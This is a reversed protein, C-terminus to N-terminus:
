AALLFVSALGLFSVFGVVDTVTTLVVAGALAPDINLRNMVLPIVLGAVAAATMNIVIAAAIVGGLERNDFWAFAVAGVVIGWLLGNLLGIVTEKRLLRGANSSGIRELALGRITISLTQSGAIGGMSAVVPMLVALAVIQELAGEFMGIVASALFATLLNIGLWFARSRAATLVPAFLDEDEDVGGQSLIARETELQMVDMADEATIRGLLIGQADVVPLSLLDHDRFLIAVQHEEVEPTVTVVDDDMVQAVTTDELYRVVDLLSLTGVFRRDRDVVMLRDTDDPIGGRLRIYRQVVALTADARVTVTDRHMLRGASEEPFSLVAEVEARRVADMAELLDEGAEDPLVDVLEAMETADLEDAADFVAELGIEEALAQAVSTPMYLLAEADAEDGAQRWLDAREDPPVSELVQAFEAPELDALVEAIKAADGSDLAESVQDILPVEPPPEAPPVPTEPPPATPGATQQPDPPTAEPDTSSM